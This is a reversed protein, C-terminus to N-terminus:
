FFSEYVFQCSESILIDMKRKYTKLLLWECINKLILTRWFKAINVPFCRHKLWLGAFKNLVSELVPTERHINYFKLFEKKVSCRQVVADSKQFVLWEWYEKKAYESWSFCRVTFWDAYTAWDPCCCSIFNLLNKNYTTFWIKFSKYMSLSPESIVYDSKGLNKVGRGVKYVLMM